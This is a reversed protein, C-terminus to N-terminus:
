TPLDDFDDDTVKKLLEKVSDEVMRLGELRGMMFRYREMDTITGNLVIQKSQDQLKRIEKLVAEAFELM